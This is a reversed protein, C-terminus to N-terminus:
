DIRSKHFEIDSIDKLANFTAYDSSGILTAELEKAQATLDKPEPVSSVKEVAVVFVGNHSAVPRSMKGEKTGMITGSMILDHGVGNINPNEYRFGDQRTVPEKVLKSVEDISKASAAASFTEMLLEAKKQERVRATVENEVEELPLVGKNKIGSLKAVVHKDSLSFLSVDGKEATFAWKVIDKPNELGPIHYEGERVQEAVRRTLKKEVVGKDFLEGTNNEGAFRNAEHFIRQSTEESPVIPKFIQAIRYSTHSTRSVDLVEIIHYGFQTEVVSINGKVGKLGADKFPEVFGENEDFWGYDGGNTKSGPDDSFNVVLSDFSVKKDKLLALLSDAEQKAKERTRKQQQSQPDNMGVLIHRVRASDAISSVGQLKYIKFYAGENYPGFVTGPTASYIATDRIIMNKRSFNQISVNGNESEQMMFVSDEAPRKGKFEEAARKADKEIVAIDEDSPVIDFVVYEVRRTSEPARFMWSHEKYYKELDSETVTVASDSVSEFHKMVFSVDASTNKKRFEVRAEAKTVYLSKNVLTRFKQFFLGSKVMDEMQRVAMESEGTVNQVAQRWKVPDLSGDPRSFQENIRGTNPDTLNQIVSPAPNVVVNEYLEDDGVRLGMQSFEPMMVHDVIYQQLINEVAQSRTQDDIERGQNRQRYNNLQGELKNLFENRDLKKGNIYGVTTYEDNGFISAGSGLLSELIFIVLALGVLGVLLGTRRRIKELISANDKKTEQAPTNKQKNM